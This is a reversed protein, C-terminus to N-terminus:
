SVTALGVGVVLVVLLGVLQVTPLSFPRLEVTVGTADRTLPIPESPAHPAPPAVPRGAWNFLRAFAVGGDIPRGMIIPCPGTGTALASLRATPGWALVASQQGDVFCAEVVSLGEFLSSLIPRIRVERVIRDRRRSGGLRRTTVGGLDIEIAVEGMTLWRLAKAGLWAAVAFVFAGGFALGLFMLGEVVHERYQAIEVYFVLPVLAAAVMTLSAVAAVAAIAAWQAVGLERLPIVIRTTVDHRNM